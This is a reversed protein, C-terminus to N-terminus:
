VSGLIVCRIIEESLLHFSPSSGESVLTVRFVEVGLLLKYAPVYKKLAPNGMVPSTDLVSIVIEDM